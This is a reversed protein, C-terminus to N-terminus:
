IMKGRRMGWNSNGIITRTRDLAMTSSTDSIGKRKVLDEIKGTERHVKEENTDDSKSKGIFKGEKRKMANKLIKESSLPNTQATLIPSADILWNRIFGGRTKM